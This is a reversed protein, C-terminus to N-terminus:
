AESSRSALKAVRGMPLAQGVGSQSILGAIGVIFLLLGLLVFSWTPVHELQWNAWWDRLQKTMALLTTRILCGVDPFPVETPGVNVKVPPCEGVEGDHTHDDGNFGGTGGGGADGLQSLDLTPNAQKINKARNLVDTIYSQGAGGSYRNLACNIDGGCGALFAKLRKLGERINETPSLGPICPYIQSYGCAGSTPNRANPDFGSEKSVIGLWLFPDVGADTAEKMNLYIDSLRGSNFGSVAPVFNISPPNPTGGIIDPNNARTDRQLARLMDVANFNKGVGGAPGLGTFIGHGIGLHLHPPTTKANGTKGVTGIKQGAVVKDGKKFLPTENMHAYYYTLGDDGNIQISNGGSTSATAETTILSVTGSVISVIPTGIPAFIDSGGPHSGHHLQIPATLGPIPFVRSPTITAM